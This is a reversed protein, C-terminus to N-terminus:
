ILKIDVVCKKQHAILGANSKCLKGCNPCPLQASQNVEEQEDAIAEKQALGLMSDISKIEAEKEAKLVKYVDILNEDGETIKNEIEAIDSILKNKRTQLEFTM